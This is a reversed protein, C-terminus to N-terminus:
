PTVAIFNVLAHAFIVGDGLRSKLYIWGLVLGCLFVLILIQPQGGYRAVHYGSWVMSSGVIAGTESFKSAVGCIWVRFFCEEAVGVLVGLLRPSIESTVNFQIPVVQNVIYLCGFSASTWLITEFMRMDMFRIEVGTMLIGFTLGITLIFAGTLLTGAVVPDERYTAGYVLVLTAVLISM